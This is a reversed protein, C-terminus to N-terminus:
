STRQNSTHILHKLSLLRYRALLGLLSYHAPFFLQKRFERSDNVATCLAIECIKQPCVKHLIELLLYMGVPHFTHSRIMNLKFIYHPSLPDSLHRSLTPLILMVIRRAISALLRYIPPTHPTNSEPLYRSTIVIQRETTLLEEIMIPLTDLLGENGIECRALLAGSGAQWARIISASISENKRPRIIAICRHRRALHLVSDLLARQASAVIIMIEFQLTRKKRLVAMLKAIFQDIIDSDRKIPIAITLCSSVGKRNIVYEGHPLTVIGNAARAIM